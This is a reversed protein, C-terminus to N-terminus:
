VLITALRFDISIMIKKKNFKSLYSVLYPCAHMNFGQKKVLAVLFVTINDIIHFQKNKKKLLDCINLDVKLIPMQYLNGM